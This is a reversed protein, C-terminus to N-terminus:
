GLDVSNEYGRNFNVGSFNGQLDVAELCIQAGEADKLDMTLDANVNHHAERYKKLEDAYSGRLISVEAGVLGSEEIHIVQAARLLLEGPFFSYQTTTVDTFDALRKQYFARPAYTQERYFTVVRSHGTAVDFRDYEEYGKNRRSQRYMYGDPKGDGDSDYFIYFLTAMDTPLYYTREEGVVPTLQASAMTDAWQDESLIKNQARNLLDLPLNAIEGGVTNLWDSLRKSIVEYTEVQYAM